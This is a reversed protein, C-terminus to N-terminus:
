QKLHEPLVQHDSVGKLTGKLKYKKERKNFKSKNVDVATASYLLTQRSGVQINMEIKCNRYQNNDNDNDHQKESQYYIVDHYDTVDNDNDVKNGILPLLHYTYCFFLYEHIYTYIYIYYRLFYILSM